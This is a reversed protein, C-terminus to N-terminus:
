RLRVYPWCLDTWALRVCPQHFTRCWWVCKSDQGEHEGNLMPLFFNEGLCLLQIVPMRCRCVPSLFVVNFLPLPPVHRLTKDRIRAGTLIEELLLVRPLNASIRMDKEFTCVYMCAYMCVYMCVHMRGDMWVYMFVHMCVYMSVYMCLYMCVFMCVCVHMYADLCAFMCVRMQPLGFAQTKVTCACHVGCHVGCHVHLFHHLYCTMQQFQMFDSLFIRFGTKEKNQHRPAIKQPIQLTEHGHVTATCQAHM